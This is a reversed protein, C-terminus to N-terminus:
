PFLEEVLEAFDTLEDADRALCAAQLGDFADGPVPGFLDVAGRFVRKVERARDAAAVWDGRAAEGLVAELGGRAVDRYSVPEGDARASPPRV